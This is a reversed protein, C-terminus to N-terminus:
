STYPFAKEMETANINQANMDPRMNSAPACRDVSKVGSLASGTSDSSSCPMSNEYTETAHFKTRNKIRECRHAVFLTTDAIFNGLHHIGEGPKQERIIKNKEHAWLSVFDATRRVAKVKFSFRIHFFTIRRIAVAIIM